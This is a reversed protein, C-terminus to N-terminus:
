GGRRPRRWGKRQRSWVSLDGADEVDVIKGDDGATNGDMEEEDAGYGNGVGEQNVQIFGKMNEEEGDEFEVGGEHEDGMLDRISASVKPTDLQGIGAGIAAAAAGATAKLKSLGQQVRHSM